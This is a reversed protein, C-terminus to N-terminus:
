CSQILEFLTAFDDAEIPDLLNVRLKLPDVLWVAHTDASTIVYAMLASRRRVQTLWTTEDIHSPNPTGNPHSHWEGVWDLTEGSAKWKRTADRQHGPDQRCFRVPSAIDM